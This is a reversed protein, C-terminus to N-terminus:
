SRSARLIFLGMVMGMITAVGIIWRSRTAAVDAEHTLRARMAVREAAIRRDMDGGAPLLADASDDLRDHLATIAAQPDPGHAAAEAADLAAERALARQLPLPAAYTAFLGALGVVVFALVLFAAWSTGASISSPTTM